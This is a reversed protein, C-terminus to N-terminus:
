SPSIYFLVDDYEVPSANQICIKSIKGSLPAKIPNMLKMAEVILVVQGKEITDGVQVFPPEGPKPSTYVTGVMPSSVAQGFNGKPEAPEAMKGTGLADIALPSVGYATQKPHKVVRIHAMGVGYSIEQIDNQANLLDILTKVAVTDVNLTSPTTSLEASDEPMTYPFGKKDMYNEMPNLTYVPYYVSFRKVLCGLFIRFFAGRKDLGRGLSQESFLPLM